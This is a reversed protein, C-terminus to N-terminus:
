RKLRKLITVGFYYVTSKAMMYEIRLYNKFHKINCKVRNISKVTKIGEFLGQIYQKGFGIKWFFLAKILFGVFLFPANIMFLFVPINKVLMYVSNRASLKVKFNNYKSSGTTASGIHLVTAKPCYVNKYGFINARFGVDVDELYAFFTDDFYGIEDFLKRRYIAAGACSSFIVREKEYLHSENGDGTKFAWGTLCLQDGANDIIKPNSYSLMKASASFITPDAEICSYLMQVFNSDAFADNNLLIVYKSRSFAIGQNVARAFGVNMENKILTIEPYTEEILATSNDSSNNDIVIIAKKDEIQDYISAICDLIYEAGNYNPIVISVDM